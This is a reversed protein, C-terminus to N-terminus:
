EDRGPKGWFARAWERQVYGSPHSWNQIDTFLRHWNVPVDKARLYSIAQRLYDPLEERH